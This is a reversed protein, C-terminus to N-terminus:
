LLSSLDNYPTKYIVQSFVTEGVRALNWPQKKLFKISNYISIELQYSLSAFSIREHKRM